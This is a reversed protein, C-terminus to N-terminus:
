KQIIFKSFQPTMKEVFNNEERVIMFIPLKEKLAFDYGVTPGMVNIATAIADAYRCDEHIVTVSALKHTIPKGTRSDITHSYRIGDQEFYNLYDGSTAMSYNSLGIISQLNSNNPSSIGIRWDEGKANKGATKIEGGIEIMFNDINLTTFYDALKDVGFGKAIASLDCYLTPNLKKIGLNELDVQIKEIGIDKKLNIIEEETPIINENHSPGFGWLNVLQGVTIDFASNTLQSIEISEKFLQVLEKSTTFWNTNISSNFKSLESDPIYTSMQNNVEVLISDINKDFNDSINKKDTIIKVSYTTGMTTGAFSFDEIKKEGSACSSLVLILFIISIKKIM